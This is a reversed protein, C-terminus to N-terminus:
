DSKLLRRNSTESCFPPDGALVVPIGICLWKSSKLTDLTALFGGFPDLLNLSYRSYSFTPMMSSRSPGLCSIHRLCAFEGSSTGLSPCECAEQQKLCPRSDHLPKQHNGFTGLFSLHKAKAIHKKLLHPNLSIGLKAETASMLLGTYDTFMPQKGRLCSLLSNVGVDFSLHLFECLGRHQHDLDQTHTWEETFTPFASFLNPVDTTFKLCLTTMRLCIKISCGCIM